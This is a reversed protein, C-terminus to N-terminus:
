TFGYNPSIYSISFVSQNYKLDITNTSLINTKLPTVNDVASIPVSKNFLKFDVFLPPLSPRTSTIFKEPSFYLIGNAGGFYISNDRSVYTASSLCM